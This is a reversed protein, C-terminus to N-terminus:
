LCSMLSVVHMVSCVTLKRDYKGWHSVGFSHLHGKFSGTKITVLVYMAFSPSMNVQARAMVVAKGTKKVAM